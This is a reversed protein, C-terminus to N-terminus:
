LNKGSMFAQLRRYKNQDKFFDDTFVSEVITGQEMLHIMAPLKQVLSIDHTAILVYYGDNKLQIITKAIYNTLVPDLASTPEDMCIVQPSMALTRVIALRQKQGGSLRVVFRNAQDFLQYERLLSEAIRQAEKPDKKLVIILPLTINEIVSLNEFLAFHQFVMGVIHTKNVANLALAEGDLVMTGSDIPELNNLVRLLTSKGVGSSGLFIAISGRKISCSIDVLIKKGAVTKNIHRLELM